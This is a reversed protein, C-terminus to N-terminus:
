KPFKEDFIVQAKQLDEETDVEIWPANVVDLVKIVFGKSALKNLVMECSAQRGKEFLVEHAAMYYARILSKPILTAGIYGKDWTPLKKDMELLTGDKTLRVKMDDEFLKRESDCVITIEDKPKLAWESIAKIIPKSYLHDANMVAFTDSMKKEGCFVTLLNGEHFNPNFLFEIPLKHNQGTIVDRLKEGQFGNVIYVKSLSLDALSALIHQILPKDSIPLLTKPTNETKEKLRLGRGAALILIEM